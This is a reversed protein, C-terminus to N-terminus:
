SCVELIDAQLYCYPSYNKEKQHTEGDVDVEVDVCKIAHLRRSHISKLYRDPQHSYWTKPTNIPQLYFRSNDDLIDTPRRSKYEMYIAEPCLKDGPTAFLKPAM